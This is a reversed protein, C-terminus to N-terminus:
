SGKHISLSPPQSVQMCDKALHGFDGCKFCTGLRKRCNKIKHGFRGCYHCTQLTHTPPKSWQTAFKRTKHYQQDNSKVPTTDSQFNPFNSNQQYFSNNNLNRSERRAADALNVEVVDDDSQDKKEEQELDYIRVCKQIREWDLKRDDLKCNFIQNDILNKVRKPVSSRFRDILTTSTKFNKRPFALKFLSLVRNSYMLVNENTRMRAGEFNKRARRKRAEKEEDFWDLLKRKVVKYETEM